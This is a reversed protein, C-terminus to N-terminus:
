GVKHLPALFYAQINGGQPQAGVGPIQRSLEVTLFLFNTQKVIHPPRIDCLRDQARRLHERRRTTAIGNIKSAGVSTNRKFYHTIKITFVVVMQRAPSSLCPCRLQLSASHKRANWSVVDMTRLDNSAWLCKSGLLLYKCLNVIM